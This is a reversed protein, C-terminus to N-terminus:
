LEYKRRRLNFAKETGEITNLIQEKVKKQIENNIKFSGYISDNSFYILYKEIDKKLYIYKWIYPITSIIPNNTVALIIGRYNNIRKVLKQYIYKNDLTNCFEDIILNENNIILKDIKLMDYQGSSPIYLKRKEYISEFWINYLDSLSFATQNDKSVFYENLEIDAINWIDKESSLNSIWDSKEKSSKSENVESFDNKSTNDNDRRKLLWNFSYHSELVNSEFLARNNKIESIKAKIKQIFINKVNINEKLKLIHENISLNVGPSLKFKESLKKKIKKYFKFHDFNYLSVIDIFSIEFIKKLDSKKINGTYSKQKLIDYIDKLKQFILRLNNFNKYNRESYDVKETKLYNNEELIKDLKNKKNTAKINKIISILNWKRINKKIGTIEIPENLVKAITSIENLLKKNIIKDKKFSRFLEDLSTLKSPTFTIFEFKNKNSKHFSELLHTKGSGKDGFVINLGRFLEIKENEKTDIHIFEFNESIIKLNDTKIVELLHNFNMINGDFTPLEAADNSYKSWDRVDSFCFAPYSNNIYNKANIKRNESSMDLTKVVFDSTIKDFVINLDEINNFGKEKQKMFHASLLVDKKANNLTKIFDNIAIKPNKSLSQILSMDESSIVFQKISDNSMIVDSEIGPIFIIGKDNSILKNHNKQNFFNHDTISAFRVDHKNLIEIVEKPERNRLVDGKM